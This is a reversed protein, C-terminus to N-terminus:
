EYNDLGLTPEYLLSKLAGYLTPSSPISPLPFRDYSKQTTTTAWSHTLRSKFHLGPHGLLGLVTTDEGIKVKGQEIDTKNRLEINEKLPTDIKPLSDSQKISVKSAAKRQKWEASLCQPCKGAVVRPHTHTIRACDERYEILPRCIDAFEEKQSVQKLLGIADAHLCIVKKRPGFSCGCFYEEKIIQCM